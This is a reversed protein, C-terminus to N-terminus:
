RGGGVTAYKDNLFYVEQRAYKQTIFQRVEPGVGKITRFDGGGIEVGVQFLTQTKCLRKFRRDNQIEDVLQNVWMAGDFMERENM